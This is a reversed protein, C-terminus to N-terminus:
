QLSNLWKLGELYIEDYRPEFIPRILKRGGSPRLRAGKPKANEEAAIAAKLLCESLSEERNHTFRCIVERNIRLEYEHEGSERVNKDVNVIAIM